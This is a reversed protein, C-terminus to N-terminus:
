RRQRQALQEHLLANFRSQLDAPFSRALEAEHELRALAVGTAAEVEAVLTALPNSTM